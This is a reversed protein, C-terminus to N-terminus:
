EKRKDSATLLALIFFAVTMLVTIVFEGWLETLGWGRLMIGEFIRIGHTLPIINSIIAIAPPFTIVPIMMGSLALSPIAVLIAM